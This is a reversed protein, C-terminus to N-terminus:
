GYKSMLDKAATNAVKTNVVGEKLEVNSVNLEEKTNCKLQEPYKKKFTRIISEILM